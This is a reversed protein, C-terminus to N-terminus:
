ADRLNRIREISIASTQIAQPTVADFACCFGGSEGLIVAGCSSKLRSAGETKTTSAVSLDPVMTAVPLPTASVVSLTTVFQWTTFLPVDNRTDCFERDHGAPNDMVIGIM